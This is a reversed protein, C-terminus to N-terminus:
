RSPSLIQYLGLSLSREEDTWDTLIGGASVDMGLDQSSPILGQANLKLVREGSQPPIWVPITDGGVAQQPCCVRFKMSDYNVLHVTFEQRVEVHLPLAVDFWYHNYSDDSSGEEADDDAATTGKKISEASMFIIHMVTVFVTIVVGLERVGALLGAM